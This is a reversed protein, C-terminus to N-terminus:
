LELVTQSLNKVAILSICDKSAQVKTEGNCSQLHSEVFANKIVLCFDNECLRCHFLPVNLAKNWKILPESSM